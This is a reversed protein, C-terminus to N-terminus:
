PETVGSRVVEAHNIVALDLRLCSGTICPYIETFHPLAYLCTYISTYLVLKLMHYPKM